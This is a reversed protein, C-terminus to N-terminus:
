IWRLCILFCLSRPLSLWKGKMSRSQIYDTQSRTKNLSEQKVSEVAHSESKDDDVYTTQTTLLPGSFTLPVTVHPWLDRLLQGFISADREMLRPMFTNRMAM